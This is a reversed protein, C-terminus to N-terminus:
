FSWIYAEGFLLGRAEVKQAAEPQWESLNSYSQDGLM